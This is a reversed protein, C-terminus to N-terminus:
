PSAPPAFSAAYSLHKSVEMLTAQDLAKPDLDVWAKRVTASYQHFASEYNDRLETFSEVSGLDLWNRVYDSYAQQLLRAEDERGLAERCDRNYDDQIARIKERQANDVEWVDKVYLNWANRLATQFSMSDSAGSDKSAPKAPTAKDDSPTAKSESPM